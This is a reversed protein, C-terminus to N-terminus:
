KVSIIVMNLRHTARLNPDSGQLELSHGWMLDGYQSSTDRAPNPDSGKLNLDCCAM